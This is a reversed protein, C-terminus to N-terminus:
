AGLQCTVADNQAEAERRAAPLQRGYESWFAFKCVTPQSTRTDFTHCEAFAPVYVHLSVAAATHSANEMRHLGISDARSDDAEIHWGNIYAVGNQGYVSKARERMPAMAGPWDFLTETLEGRLVKVFCHADAHDHVSSGMGPPWCLVMVNYHGNGADVLNRTYRHASFLTYRAYDAADARYAGLLARVEDVNVREVSFLAALGALLEDFTVKSMNRNDGAIISELSALPQMRSLIM